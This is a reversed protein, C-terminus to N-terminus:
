ELGAEEKYARITEVNGFLNRRGGPTTAMVKHDALAPHGSYNQVNGYSYSIEKAIRKTTYLKGDPMSQTMELMSAVIPPLEEGPVYEVDDIDFKM